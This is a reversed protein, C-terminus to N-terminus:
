NVQDLLFNTAKTVDQDYRELADKAMQKEFGMKVLEDVKSADGVISTETFIKSSSSEGQNTQKTETTSSGSFADEFGISATSQQQQQQQQAGDNIMNGGFISDWDDQSNTSTKTATQQQQQQTSGEMDPFNFGGFNNAWSTNSQQKVPLSNSPVEDFVGFAEDFDDFNTTTQQGSGSGMVKAESLPGSFASDFDDDITPAEQKNESTETVNKTTAPPPPPPPTRHKKVTSASDDNGQSPTSYSSDTTTAPINDFTKTWDSNDSPSSSSVGALDGFVADFDVADSKQSAQQKVQLEAQEQHPSFIDFFNNNNETEHTSKTAPPSSSTFHGFTSPINNNDDENNDDDSSSSDDDGNDISFDTTSEKGDMLNRKAQERDQESATVQRRNIDLMMDQQKVQGNLGDLQAELAATEAQIEHVRRRCEESEKRSTELKQRLQHIEEQTTALQQQAAEFENRVQIWEPEERRLTEQLENLDKVQAEHAMRVQAMQAQLEQKQKALQELTQETTLKQNKVDVTASKLSNIQNQLQNVQNTEQTLQDNNGFDGLLDEEILSQVKTTTTTAATAPQDFPDHSFSRGITTASRQVNVPSAAVPLPSPPVLSAPLAPPLTDGRLRKHILHMAVAFENRSLRGRQSTDALDWIHALDTDPLRSNKFFEVAEKGQVFGLRNIDIKDFFSDYQAKETATVDWQRPISETSNSFAMNGLSDITAARQPPTMMMRNGTLQQQITPTGLASNGSMQRLIPSQQHSLMPTSATGSASSYVSPPLQTPLTTLTGDMLKAIYHMAIAFESQTLTGAQRVDALAWIKGLTETPLKSKLFVSKARSADLVGNTPQHARFISYYKERETPTITNASSTDNNSNMTPSTVGAIDTQIGKFQPLAVVTSIIPDAVEQGHQACAILKLAISFTEPTLYGVNDRDATEWIDSLIPNPVGSSAFFQVAESGTVIGPKSQSAAKFLQGYAQTEQPTLYREWASTSYSM